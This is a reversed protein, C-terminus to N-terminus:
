PWGGFHDSSLTGRRPHYSHRGDAGLLRREHVAAVIARLASGDVRPVMRCKRWAATRNLLNERLRRPRSGPRAGCRNACAVGGASRACPWPWRPLEALVAGMRRSARTTAEFTGVSCVNPACRALARMPWAVLGRRRGSRLSTSSRAGSDARMSSRRCRLRTWRRASIGRVARLVEPSRTSWRWRVATRVAESETTIALGEGVWARGCRRSRERYHRTLSNQGRSERVAFEARAGEAM